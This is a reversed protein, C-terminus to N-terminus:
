VIGGGGDIPTVTAVTLQYWLWAGRLTWEAELLSL